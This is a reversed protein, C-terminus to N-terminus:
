GGKRVHPCMVTQTYTLDGLRPKSGKYYRPEMGEFYRGALGPVPGNADLRVLFKGRSALFIGLPRVFRVFDEIDRCYVLQVGPILGKFARPQFIFPIAQGSSICWLSICGYKAHALLLEREFPEFRADPTIDVGIVETPSDVSASLLHLMPISVFQGCSYKSFGQVKLIPLAAPRASVNLYTVGPCKLAKAFFLTAYSRFDPEVYWSTVHCRITSAGSSHITSFILLIAGVITEDSTIAYGYKPFGEPTPHESLRDFVQLFYNKSYGLGKSLLGAIEVRDFDAIARSRIGLNGPALLVM